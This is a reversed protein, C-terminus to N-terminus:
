LQHLLLSMDNARRPSLLFALLECLLLSMDNAKRPSLLFAMLQFTKTRGHRAEKLLVKFLIISFYIFCYARPM